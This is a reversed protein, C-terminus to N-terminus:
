AGVIRSATIIKRLEDDTLIPVVPQDVTPPRMRAMPNQTIEGEELLWKFLQQLSAYRQRGTAAAHNDLM